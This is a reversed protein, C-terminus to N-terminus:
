KGDACFPEHLHPCASACPLHDCGQCVARTPGWWYTTAERPTMQRAGDEYMGRECAGCRPCHTPEPIGKTNEVGVDVYNIGCAAGCYPCPKTDAATSM